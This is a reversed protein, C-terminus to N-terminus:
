LGNKRFGGENNRKQRSFDQLIENVSDMFNFNIKIGPFLAIIFKEEFIIIWLDFIDFEDYRKIPKNVKTIRENFIVIFCLEDFNIRFAVVRLYRLM